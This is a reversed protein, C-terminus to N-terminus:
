LYDTSLWKNQLTCRHAKLVRALDRGRMGENYYNAVAVLGYEYVLDRVDKPLQDIAKMVQVSNGDPLHAVAERWCEAKREFHRRRRARYRAGASLM